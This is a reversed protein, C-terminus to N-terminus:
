SRVYQGPAPELPKHRRSGLKDPARKEDGARATMWEGWHTWWTGPREAAEARWQDPDLGCPSPGVYMKAKPNGPPNVLSAIHGANTLVFTSDGCMLNATQYCGKWPTIHDTIAGTVYTELGIKGVDVPKGLVTLGGPKVLLNDEFIELFQKHLAGPLNTGDANWALIDFRPPDNGLLYNNVWYNWVLDNPRMWAFVRGLEQGSLIGARESKNGARSLLGPNLFMGMPAPVSFDLLTVGFTAAKVRDDSQQAMTSLLAATTIGGACLGLVGIDDSKTVETVVDISNLLASVYTDLDWDRQAPTPNRWSVVFFQIGRSVAYEVFSRGPALDMFYYRGIQPPIMMVPRARVEPTSPAYQLVECVEDRYVVAGPTAALNEGVRFPRRDVQSPMGGNRLVDGAFNRAGRMLSVGATDFLRKLAAPNGLVTNTPALTSTLIEAALRAREETRWDLDAEEVVRHLARASALYAQGLRRYVPNDSWAPDKFRWDGKAPAVESRGVAVRAVEVTLRAGERSLPGPRAVAKGFAAVLDRASLGGLDEGGQLAEVAREGVEDARNDRFAAGAKVEGSVGDRERKGRGAGGEPGSGNSSRARRRRPAAGQKAATDATESGM